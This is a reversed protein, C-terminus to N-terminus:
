YGTNQKLAPNLTLASTPIPFIRRYTDTNTKYGWSGEFKGFRIMDNRHWGEWTLERCRENYVSDLTVDTWAPSTTRNARLSNVLSLATAGNTPSGGRLIAEAKTLVIDAYRFIPIDNNQNRSSSSADPYFKVNRYGQNWAIEDNGVDFSNSVGNFPDQGNAIDQRLVVNPGLNVQYTYTGGPDSGNYYQDYGVNTTTVTLPVTRAADQWQLGTLWQGNRVDNPDNFNAYFEPLTSAPGAPDYPIDFFNFGAGAAVKGMSRPVDYRAHYNASRGYWGAGNSNFPVAFIFEDESGPSTPGNTPYFMVLYNAMDTISFRGSSIIHDCAAICDDYRQTGTYYEANLYMKALLAWAGYVTFRGYTTQDAVTSLYPICSKVDSEIFSFVQVRPVNTHPSFDGYATDLPVNGWNDMLMFIAYDRVLKLEALKMQKSSGTPMTTNLISIAQNASSIIVAMWGWTGNLYGNDKTWTHYHMQMNQAGDYWNGGHAPMMSEDTSYSQQFFYEQALYGDLAVYPTLEVQIYGLSDQPFVSPTIETTIPVDLKHCSSIIGAIIILM